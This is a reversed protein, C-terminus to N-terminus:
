FGIRLSAGVLRANESEGEFKFSTLDLDLGVAMTPSLKYAVGLGFYPRTHTDSDRGSVGGFSGSLKARNRAVGARLTADWTPSLDVRYALGLGWGTADVRARFPSGNLTGRESAQGYDFYGLEAALAGGLGYGGVLKFGTDSDDCRGTCGEIDIKSAGVGAVLYGQALAPGACLLAAAAAAGILEKM